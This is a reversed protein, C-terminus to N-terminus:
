TTRFRAELLDVERVLKRATEDTLGRGRAIRYIQDREARLGALRLKREIEDIRRALDREEGTKSRGDIRQRYLEMVRAGADAYLDADARGADMDHQAKDVAQLAIPSMRALAGSIVVALLLIM